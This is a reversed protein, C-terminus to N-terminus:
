RASSARPSLAALRDTRRDQRFDAAAGDARHRRPVLGVIQQLLGSSRVGDVVAGVEKGAGVLTGVDRGSALVADGSTAIWNLAIDIVMYGAYAFVTWVLIAAITGFSFGGRKGPPPADRGDYRPGGPSQPRQAPPPPAPARYKDGDRGFINSM